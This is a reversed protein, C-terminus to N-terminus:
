RPGAMFPLKQPMLPTSARIAAEAQERNHDAQNAAQQMALENMELQSRQQDVGAKVQEIQMEMQGAQLDAQHDQQASSAKLQATQIEAATKAQQSQLQGQAIQQKIQAMQQAAQGKGGGMMSHLANPDVNELKAIGDEFASELSVGIQFKRLYFLLVKGLLPIMQPLTQMMPLSSQLYAGIAQVMQTADRREGAQDAAVTSDTEIDVRFGRQQEDRLLQIANAFTEVDFVDMM